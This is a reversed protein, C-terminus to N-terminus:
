PAMHRDRAAIARAIIGGRWSENRHSPLWEYLVPNLWLDGQSHIGIRFDSWIRDVGPIASPDVDITVSGRFEPGVM